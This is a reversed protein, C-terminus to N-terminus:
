DACRDAVFVEYTDKYGRYFGSLFTESKGQERLINTQKKAAKTAQFRSKASCVIALRDKKAMETGMKLGDQFEPANWDVNKSTSVCSICFLVMLTALM